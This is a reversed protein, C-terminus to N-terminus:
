NKNLNILYDITEQKSTFIKDFSGEIMANLKSDIFSARMDTHLGIIHKKNSYAIGLEFCAGEDPVRGDLVFLFIDCNLIQKIDLNFIAKNRETQTMGDFPPKDLEAGDRQPLFVTFGINEIKSTLNQNFAREAENFLPGAFYVKNKLM